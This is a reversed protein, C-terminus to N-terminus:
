TFHFIMTYSLKNLFALHIIGLYIRQTDNYLYFSAKFLSNTQKWPSKTSLTQISRKYVSPYYQYYFTHIKFFIIFLNKEEFTGGTEGRTLDYRLQRGSRVHSRDVAMEAKQDVQRRTVPGPVLWTRELIMEAYGSSVDCVLCSHNSEM